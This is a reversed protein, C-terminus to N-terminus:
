VIDCRVIVKFDANYNEYWEDHKEKFYEPCNMDLLSSFGFLDCKLDNLVKKVANETESKIKQELRRCATDRTQKDIDMPPSRLTVNLSTTFIPLGREVTVKTRSECKTVEFNTEFANLIYGDIKGKYWQLGRTENISLHAYYESNKFVVCGTVEVEGSNNIQAFPFAFCFPESINGKIAAFMRCDCGNGLKQANEVIKMVTLPAVANESSGLKIISEASETVFVCIDSNTQRDTDFYNLVGAIDNEAAETGVAIINNHGFYLKRSLKSNIGVIAESISAANHKVFATESKAAQASDPNYYQVSVTYLGNHFDVGIGEVIARDNLETTPICSCLLTLILIIASLKLKTM